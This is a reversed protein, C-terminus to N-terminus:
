NSTRIVQQNTRILVRGTDRKKHWSTKFLVTNQNTQSMRTGLDVVCERRHRPAFRILEQRQKVWRNAMEIKAARFTEAEFHPLM